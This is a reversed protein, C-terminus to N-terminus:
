SGVKTVTTTKGGTTTSTATSTVPKEVYGIGTGTCPTHLQAVLASTPWPWVMPTVPGCGSKIKDYGVVVMAYASWLVAVAVLAM